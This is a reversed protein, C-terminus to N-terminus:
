EDIQLKGKSINTPNIWAIKIILEYNMNNIQEDIICMESAHEIVPWHHTTTSVVAYMGYTTSPTSNWFLGFWIVIMMQFVFRNDSLSEKM